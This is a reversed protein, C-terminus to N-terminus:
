CNHWNRKRDVRELLTKTLKNPDVSSLLTKLNKSEQSDDNQVVKVLSILVEGTGVHDRKLERAVM